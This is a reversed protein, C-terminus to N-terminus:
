FARTACNTRFWGTLPDFGIAQFSMQLGSFIGPPLAYVKLLSPSGIGGTGSFSVGGFVGLGDEIVFALPWTPDICLPGLITPLSPSGPFSLFLVYPVNAPVASTANAIAVQLFGPGTATTLERAFLPFTANTLAGPSAGTVAIVGGGTATVLTSAYGNADTFSPNSASLTAPGNTSWQVVAGAMPNQQADLVRVVLPLPFAEGAPSRQDAGFVAVTSVASSTPRVRQLANSAHSTIWLAGDPGLRLSTINYFNQAWNAASPQGPVAPAPQWSSGNHVLRRVDGAYYDFFFASGEYAAGFDRPKGLNRYRAGGMVASWGSGHAQWAIPDTLGPPPNGGCTGGTVNGERWPWGFNVLQLGGFTPYVYESYEEVQNAGVDGLYVNGTIPDIEMRFPNRLGHAIVLQTFDNNHSLPNNGPDLTAFSPLALSPGAPLGSVDLRMLAGVQMNPNQANCAIADDGVCLYLKGDPGFRLSGGNHNSANDLLTGLVIHRSAATFQLNTSAPNALDGTCTFRDLHMFADVASSYYVYFHGNSAFGPDAAISLLGEESGSAVSPVTGIPIATTSTGAYLSVSGGSNAILARGDPLFCVDNPSSLGSAVLTDITFGTPVNQALLLSPACALALTAFLPNKMSNRAFCPISM